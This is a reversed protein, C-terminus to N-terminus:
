GAKQAIQLRIAALASELSTFMPFNFGGFQRQKIASQFLKILPHTGVLAGIGRPDTATGPQGKSQTLIINFLQQFDSTSTSVDLIWYTPTGIKDMLVACEKSMDLVEASTVFGSFSMIMIPEDNVQKVTYPMPPTGKNCAYM